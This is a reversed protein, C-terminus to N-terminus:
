GECDYIVIPCIKCESVIKDFCSCCMHLDVTEGDYGSGYGIERHITFDEQLDFFDMEKGCYNCRAPIRDANKMSTTGKRTCDFVFVLVEFLFQLVLFAVIADSVVFENNTFNCILFWICSFVVCASIYASAIEAARKM